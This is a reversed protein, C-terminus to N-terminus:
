VEALIQNKALGRDAAFSPIGGDESATMAATADGSTMVGSRSAAPSSHQRLISASRKGNTSPPSASATQDKTASTSLTPPVALTKPVDFFCSFFTTSFSRVAGSSKM